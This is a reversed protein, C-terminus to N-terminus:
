KGVADKQTVPLSCSSSTILGQMHTQPSCEPYKIKKSLINSHDFVCSRFLGTIRFIGIKM